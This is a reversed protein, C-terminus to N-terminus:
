TQLRQLLRTQNNIILRRWKNRVVADENNLHLCGLDKDNKVHLGVGTETIQFAV